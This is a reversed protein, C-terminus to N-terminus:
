AATDQPPTPGDYRAAYPDEDPVPDPGHDDSM